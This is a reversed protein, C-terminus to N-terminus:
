DFDEEAHRALRERREYAEDPDYEPGDDGSSDIEEEQIEDVFFGFLEDAVATAMEKDSGGDSVTAHDLLREDEGEEPWGLHDAGGYMSAPEYYGSSTFHITLEWARDDAVPPLFFFERVIDLLKAYWVKPPPFLRLMEDVIEKPVEKDPHEFVWKGPCLWNNECQGAYVTLSGHRNSWSHGGSSM